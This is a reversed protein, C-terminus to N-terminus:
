KTRISNTEGESIRAKVWALLTGGHSPVVRVEYELTLRPRRKLRRENELASSKRRDVSEM